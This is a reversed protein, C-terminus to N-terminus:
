SHHFNFIKSRSKINKIKRQRTKRQRTKRQRTKSQKTKSQKSKTKKNKQKKGGVVVQLNPQYVFRFFSRSLQINPPDQVNILHNLSDRTVIQFRLYNPDEDGGNNPNNLTIISGNNDIVFTQLFMNLLERVQQAPQGAIQPRFTMCIINEYASQKNISKNSQNVQLTSIDLNNLFTIRQFSSFRQRIEAEQNADYLDHLYINTINYGMYTLLNCVELEDISPGAFLFLLSIDDRTKYNNGIYTLINTFADESGTAIREINTKILRQVLM